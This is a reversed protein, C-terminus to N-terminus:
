RFRAPCEGGFGAAALALGGIHSVVGRLHELSKIAGISGAAVGLLAVPKGSM